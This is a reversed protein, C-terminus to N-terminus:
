QAIVYSYIMRLGGGQSGKKFSVIIIVDVRLGWLFGLVEYGVGDSFLECVEVDRRGGGM